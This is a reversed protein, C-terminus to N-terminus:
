RQLRLLRMSVTPTINSAAVNIGDTNLLITSDGPIIIPRELVLRGSRAVAADGSFFGQPLMPWIFTAGNGLQESHRMSFSGYQGATATFGVTCTCELVIWVETAPVILNTGNSLNTPTTATISIGQASINAAYPFAPNTASVVFGQARTDAYWRFIDMIPAIQQGLTQPNEGMSKLQFFDLLGAPVFGIPSTLLNASPKAM